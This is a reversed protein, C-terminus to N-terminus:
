GDNMGAVGVEELLAGGLIYVVGVEAGKFITSRGVFNIAM